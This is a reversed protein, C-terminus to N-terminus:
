WQDVHVGILNLCRELPPIIVKTIYYTANARLGSNNLVEHPTRICDYLPQNPAGAIVIYPVREGSRPIARPDKKTLRRVLELAPVRASSKYGRLGRFERAFTLDQISVRETLVKDLQRTVYKKM